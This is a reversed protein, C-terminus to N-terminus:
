DRVSMWPKIPVEIMRWFHLSDLFPNLWPTIVCYATDKVASHHQVHHRADQIVHIKMLWRIPAPVKKLPMHTWKHFQNANASLVGFLIIQWGFHGTVIAVAWIILM